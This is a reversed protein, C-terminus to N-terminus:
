RGGRQQRAKYDRWESFTVYEGPIRISQENIFKNWEQAFTSMSGDAMANTYNEIYDNSRQLTRIRAEAIQRNAGTTNGLSVNAQSIFDRDSNSVQAGLSGGAKALTTDNAISRMLAVDDDWAAEIPGTYARVGGTSTRDLAELFQGYKGIASDNEAFVTQLQNYQRQGAATNFYNSRRSEQKERETLIRGEIQREVNQQTASRDLANEGRQFQQNSQQLNFQQARDAANEGRQFTQNTHTTERNFNREQAGTVQNYGFQRQDASANNYNNIDGQYGTQGQEFQQENRTTRSQFQEDLGKDLYTQAISILDPNNSQLMRQAVQLRSSQVEDPLQPAQPRAVSQPAQPVQEMTPPTIPPASASSTQGGGAVRASFNQIYKKTEDPLYQSWSGGSREARRMARQVRGPGANYAAAALIPDGFSQLQANYYAEGLLNNYEPDSRYRREDFPVGAMRAAEPATGPMVQGPGVAGKPSTRFAGTRPDTGGEIPVIGQYYYDRASLQQPAQQAPQPAQQTPPPAQPAPQPVMGAQPGQPGPPPAQPAPQSPVLASAAAAMGPNGNATAPNAMAPNQAPPPANAAQAAENLAKVYADEREGYKKEQRKTMYAGAIAQAARALGDAYAWKGQAVPATSMGNQSIGQALRTRPDNQYAQAIAPISGSYPM